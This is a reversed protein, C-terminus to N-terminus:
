EAELKRYEPVRHVVDIAALCKDVGAPTMERFAMVTQVLINLFEPTARSITFLLYDQDTAAHFGTVDEPFEQALPTANIWIKMLDPSPLVKSIKKMPRPRPISLGKEYRRISIIAVDSKDALDRQSLGAALRCARLCKGFANVKDEM